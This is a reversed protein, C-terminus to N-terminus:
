GALLNKLDDEALIPVGAKQAKAVKSGPSEGVFVGTTKKSVNDTVKAGLEELATRAEERSMTELTGTIVYQRGTLPGEKPRDDEDAELKLGLARLEEVLRLNDEDAFWEAISEARDPGIGECEMIQEQSATALAEVSGFHRALNQALIEQRHRVWPNAKEDPFRLTRVEGLENKLRIIPAPEFVNTM